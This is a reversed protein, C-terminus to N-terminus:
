KGIIDCEINMLDSVRKKSLNTNSLTHPIVSVEFKADDVYSVTLSIGDLAVSGKEIIYKTISPDASIMMRVANDDQVISAIRGTGDIHGSVIHGGLRDSVCLARELNVPSNARLSGLSTRQMTEPMADAMFSSDSLACVTLCAGNVAISDGIKTGDLVKRAAITLVASRAGSTVGIVSGVEEIIGTFM